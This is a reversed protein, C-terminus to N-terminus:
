FKLPFQLCSLEMNQWEKLRCHLCGFLSPFTTRAFLQIDGDQPDPFSNSIAHAFEVPRCIFERIWESLITSSNPSLRASARRPEPHCVEVLQSFHSFISFGAGTFHRFMNLQHSLHQVSICMQQSWNECWQVLCNADWNEIELAAALKRELVDTERIAM